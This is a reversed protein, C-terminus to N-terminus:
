GGGCAAGRHRWRWELVPRAALDFERELYFSSAGAESEAELAKRGGTEVIRYRTEGEFHRLQWGATEGASFRGLALPEARLPLAALLAAALLLSRLTMARGGYRLGARCDRKRRCLPGALAPLTETQCEAENSREDTAGPPPPSLPSRPGRAPVTRAQRGRCPQLLRRRVLLRIDFPSVVWAGPDKRWLSIRELMPCIEALPNWAGHELDLDDGREGVVIDIEGMVGRGACGGHHVRGLGCRHDLRQLPAPEPEGMDEVGVVMEVMDTAIGLKDRAVARRHDARSRIRRANGAEIDLDALAVAIRDARLRRVDEIHRAVGAAM